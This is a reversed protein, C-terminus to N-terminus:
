VYLCRLRASGVARGALLSTRRLWEGRAAEGAALKPATVVVKAASAAVRPWSRRSCGAARFERFLRPDARGWEYQQRMAE